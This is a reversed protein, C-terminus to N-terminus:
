LVPGKAGMKKKRTKESALYSSFSTIFTDTEDFYFLIIHSVFVYPFSILSDILYTLFESVSVAPDM